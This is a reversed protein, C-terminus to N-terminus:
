RAGKRGREYGAIADQVPQEIAQKKAEAILRQELGAPDKLYKADKGRGVQIVGQYVRLEGPLGLTEGGRIRFGTFGLRRWGAPENQFAEPADKWKARLAALCKTDQLPWTPNPRGSFILVEVTVNTQDEAGALLDPALGLCTLSIGAAAGLVSKMTKM